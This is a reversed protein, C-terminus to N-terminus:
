TSSFLPRTYAGAAKYTTSLTLPPPQGGGGLNAAAMGCRKRELVEPVDLEFVARARRVGKPPALRWARTDLGAGLLVVQWHNARGSRPDAPESIAALV